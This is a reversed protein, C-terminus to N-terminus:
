LIQSIHGSKLNGTHSTAVHVDSQQLFVIEDVDCDQQRSRKKLVRLHIDIPPLMNHFPLDSQFGM